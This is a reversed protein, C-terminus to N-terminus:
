ILLSPSVIQLHYLVMCYIFCWKITCMYLYRYDILFNVFFDPWYLPHIALVLKLHYLHM